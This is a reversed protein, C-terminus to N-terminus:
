TRGPSHERLPARRLVRACLRLCCTLTAVILAPAHAGAFLACHWFGVEEDGLRWCLFVVRGDRVGYFDVLGLDVDKLFCEHSHIAEVAAYFQDAAQRHKAILREFEHAPEKKDCDSVLELLDIETEIKAMRDRKEQLDRILETLAPLLQNAEEVTFLRVQNEKM